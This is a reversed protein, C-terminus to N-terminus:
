VRRYFTYSNWHGVEVAFDIRRSDVVISYLDLYKFPGSPSTGLQFEGDPDRYWAHDWVNVGPEIEVAQGRDGGGVLVYDEAM